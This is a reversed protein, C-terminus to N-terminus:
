PLASNAEADRRDGAAPGPRERTDLFLGRLWVFVVLGAFILWQLTYFANQLPFPVDPDAGFVPQSREFRASPSTVTVYGPALDAAVAALEPEWQAALGEGTITVLPETASIPADRYFNEDPQVRGSVTVRDSQPEPAAAPTPVWGQLVAVTRGDALRLGDVILYGVRGSGDVRSRVASRAQPLPTGTVRVARGLASFPLDGGTVVETYDAERAVAARELDLQDQTRQFQWVSAAVCIAIAVLALITFGIWRPTALTRVM